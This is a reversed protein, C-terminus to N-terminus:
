KKTALKLIFLNVLITHFINKIYWSNVFMKGPTFQKLYMKKQVFQNFNTIFFLLSNLSVTNIIILILKRKLM